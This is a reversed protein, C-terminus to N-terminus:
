LFVGYEEGYKESKPVKDSIEQISIRLTAGDELQHVSRYRPAMAHWRAFGYIIHHLGELWRALAEPDPSRRLLAPELLAIERVRANHLDCVWRFAQEAPVGFEHVFCTVLNCWNLKRDKAFGFIDNIIAVVEASLAELREMDPDALIEKPLEWGLQYEIFDINPIMGINMRRRLLHQAPGPHIGTKRFQNAAVCEERVSHVWDLFRRGHRNLWRTSMVKSYAQGLEWWCRLHANGRGFVKPRGRIAQLILAQQGDDVEEIVDDYFIWLALFKTIVEAKEPDLCPFPWNAYEGVALKRFKEAGAEDHIVGRERLWVEAKREMERALPSLPVAWAEPYNLSVEVPLPSPPRFNTKLQHLLLNAHKSRSGSHGLSDSHGM